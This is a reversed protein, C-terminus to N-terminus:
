TIRIAYLHIFKFIKVLTCESLHVFVDCHGNSLISTVPMTFSFLKMYWRMFYTPGNPIRKCEHVYIHHKMGNHYKPVNSLVENKLLQLISLFILVKDVFIFQYFMQNVTLGWASIALWCTCLTQSVNEKRFLQLFSLTIRWGLLWINFLM